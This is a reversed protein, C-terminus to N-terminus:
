LEEWTLIQHPVVFHQTIQEDNFQKIENRIQRILKFLQYTGEIIAMVTALTFVGDIDQGEEANATQLLTLFTKEYNSSAENLRYKYSDSYVQPDITMAKVKNPDLLDAKMNLLVNNFRQVSTNYAAQLENLVEPDYVDSNNKAMRGTGEVVNGLSDFTVMFESTTLQQLAAMTKKSQAEAIHLSFYMLCTLFFAIIKM